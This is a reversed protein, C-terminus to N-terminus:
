FFLNWRSTPHHNCALAIISLFLLLFLQEVPPVRAPRESRRFLRTWRGFGWGGRELGIILNLCNFLLFFILWHVLDAINQKGNWYWKRGTGHLPIRIRHAPFLRANRSDPRQFRLPWVPDIWCPNGTSHLFRRRHTGLPDSWGTWKSRERNFIIIM